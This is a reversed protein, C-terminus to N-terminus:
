YNNTNLNEYDLMVLEKEKQLNEIIQKMENEANKHFDQKGAADPLGSRM